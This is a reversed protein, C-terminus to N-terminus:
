EAAKTAVAAVLADGGDDDHATPDRTNLRRV